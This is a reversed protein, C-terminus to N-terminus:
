EVFWALRLSVMSRDWIKTMNWPTLPIGSMPLTSKFANWVVESTVASSLIPPQHPLHSVQFVAIDHGFFPGLSKSAVISASGLVSWPSLEGLVCSARARDAADCVWGM